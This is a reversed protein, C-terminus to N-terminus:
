VNSCKDRYVIQQLLLQLIVCFLTSKSTKCRSKLFAWPLGNFTQRVFKAVLNGTLFGGEGRGKIASIGTLNTLKCIPKVKVKSFQKSYCLNVLSDNM